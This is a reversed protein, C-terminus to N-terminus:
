RLTSAGARAGAVPAFLGARAAATALVAFTALSLLAAITVDSLYHAGFAVRLGSAATAAALAAALAVPRWRPPALPVICLLWFGTSAEGSVFSCNSACHDTFVGAPVFPLDGGFLDTALPRPRGSFSKLWLNVIVLSCLVISALAVFAGRAFRLAGAGGRRLSFLAAGLLLVAIAPPLYHLASRVERLVPDAAAPFSGCVTRGSDAPCAAPEFFWASAAIDLGPLRNFFAVAALSAVVLAVAM